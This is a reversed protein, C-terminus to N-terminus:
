MDAANGREGRSIAPAAAATWKSPEQETWAEPASGVDDSLVGDRDPEEVEDPGVDGVCGVGPVDRM